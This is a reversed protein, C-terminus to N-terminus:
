IYEIGIVTIDDQKPASKLFEELSHNISELMESVPKMSSAKASELLREEGFEEESENFEEFVGDTFLLLRDGPRFGIKENKYVAKGKMGIIRGTKNLHETEGNSKLLLQAPHGASSYVLTQKKPNIDVVFCSFYSNLSKYNSCFLNNLSFLIDSPHRETEKLSEFSSKILMTVLAAQVGHGTADAIYIRVTGDKLKIIDYIDGGVEDMPAYRCAIRLREHLNEYEPLLRAQIQKAFNMDKKILQLSSNLADTREEVKQELNRSYDELEYKAKEMNKLMQNFIRSFQGIEDTYLAPMRVSLDGKSVREASRSLIGLPRVVMKVAWYGAIAYISFVAILVFSFLRLFSYQSAEYVSRDPIVSIIFWGAASSRSAIVKYKEKMTFDLNIIKKGTNQFEYLVLETIDNMLSFKSGTIGKKGIKELGEKQRYYLIGRYDKKNVEDMENLYEESSSSIAKGNKDVIFSTTGSYAMTKELVSSSLQHLTIDRSAVGLLDDGDYIPYSVTIMMGEGALDLYPEEWGFTRNHFDAALYFHQRTPKYIGDADKYPIYPYIFLFDNVTTLYVWSYAFTDYMNKFVPELKEATQLERYIVPDFQFDNYLLYSLCPSKFKPDNETCLEFSATKSTRKVSSDLRSKKETFKTKRYNERYADALAKTSNAVRYLSRDVLDAALFSMSELGKNLDKAVDSFIVRYGIFFILLICSILLIFSLIFGNRISLTVKMTLSICQM